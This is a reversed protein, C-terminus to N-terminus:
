FPVHFVTLKNGLANYSSLAEYGRTIGETGDRDVGSYVAIYQKGDHLYTTISSISGRPTEFRFLEEHNIADVAKLNGDVTSYFLLGSKTFLAESRVFRDEPPLWTGKFSTSDDVAQDSLIKNIKDLDWDTTRYIWKAIGTDVDRAFISLLKENNQDTKAQTNEAGSFTAYYFLDNSIMNGELKLQGDGIIKTNQKDILTQFDSGHSYARWVRDGTHIYYATVHGPADGDDASVGVIIKDGAILVSSVGFERMATDENVVSWEVQGSRADLAVVVSDIQQLFVKGDAYALGQKSRAAADPEIDPDLKAEYKWIIRGSRNLDLAFIQDMSAHAYMIGNVVLPTSGHGAFDGTAFSWAEQLYSVNDRNIQALTSFKPLEYGGPNTCQKKEPEPCPDLWGWFARHSTDQSLAPQVASM